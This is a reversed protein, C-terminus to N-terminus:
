RESFVKVTLMLITTVPYVCLTFCNTTTILLGMIQGTNTDIYYQAETYIYIFKLSFQLTKTDPSMLFFFNDTGTVM